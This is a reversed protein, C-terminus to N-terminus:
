PGVVSFGHDELFRRVRDPQDGQVEIERGSLTGGCGLSKKAKKLLNDLEPPSLHTPFQSIVVVTKGGRQSKERRLVVRFKKQSVAPVVPGSAAAEPLPRDPFVEPNLAAFPSQLPSQSTSIPIKPKV